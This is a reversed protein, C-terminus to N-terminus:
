PRPRACDPRARRRRLRHPLGARGVHRSPRRRAPQADAAGGARGRRSAVASRRRGSGVGLGALLARVRTGRSASAQDPAALADLARDLEDRDIAGLLRMHDLFVLASQWRVIAAHGRWDASAQALGDARRVLAALRAVDDVGMRDLVRLLQPYRAYGRLITAAAAAQSETPAPSGGPRSCRRSTACRSSPRRPTGSDAVRAMRGLGAGSGGVGVPGRRRAARRRRRRLRPTWFQRGGPLLRDNAGVRLQGLLFAPDVSPRWFPRERLDWGRAVVRLGELLELGAAVRRSLTRTRSRCRRASSRAPCRRSSRWCTPRCATAACCPWCSRNPRTPRSAPWRGDLDARGRSRRAAALPRRRDAPVARRGAAAGRRRRAAAPGPVPAGPDM